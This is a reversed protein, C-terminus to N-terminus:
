DSLVLLKCGEKFPKVGTFYGPPIHLFDLTEENLYFKIKKSKKCPKDWNDIKILNLVVRLLLFGVNNLKIGKGDEPLVCIIRM